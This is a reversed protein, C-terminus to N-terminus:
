RVTRGIMVLVVFLGVGAYIAAANGLSGWRRKRLGKALASTNKADRFARGAITQFKGLVFGLVLGVLLGGIASSYM